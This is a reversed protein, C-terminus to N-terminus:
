KGIVEEPDIRYDGKMVEFYLQKSVRGIVRGKKIRGIKLGPAFVDLHAYVIQLGNDHEIIIFKGLTSDDKFLTIRGDFVSVVKAHEHNPKLIVASSFIEFNYIPDTYLGFKTKFTYGGKIPAITKRGRYRAVKKNKYIGSNIHAIIKTHRKRKKVIKPVAKKSERQYKKIAKKKKANAKKISKLKKKYERKKVARAALLKKLENIKQEKKTKIATYDDIDKKIIDMKSNLGDLTKQLKEFKKEIKKLDEIYKKSLSKFIEDKIISELNFSNNNSSIVSLSILKTSSFLALKELKKKGQILNDFKKKLKRYKLNAINYKKNKKNLKKKVNRLEKKLQSIKKEKARIDKIVKSISNNLYQIDKKYSKSMLPAVLILNFIIFLNLVLIRFPQNINIM